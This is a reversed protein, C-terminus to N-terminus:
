DPELSKSGLSLRQDYDVPEAAHGSLQFAGATDGLVLGCDAEGSQAARCVPAIERRKALHEAINQRIREPEPSRIDLTAVIRDDGDSRCIQRILLTHRVIVIGTGAHNGQQM